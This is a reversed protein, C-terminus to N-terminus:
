ADEIYISLKDDYMLLIAKDSEANGELYDRDEKIKLMYKTSNVIQAVHLETM